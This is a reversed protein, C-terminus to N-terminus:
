LFSLGVYEYVDDGTLLHSDFYLSTQIDVQQTIRWRRHPSTLWFGDGAIRIIDRLNDDGTLLHSDFHQQTVGHTYPLRDDGTLLHSDFDCSNPVWQWAQETMEPSSIHTLIEWTHSTIDWEDTMEPSSIHTLIDLIYRLSERIVDDGTLLHSDFNRGFVCRGGYYRWRRHPSTLWFTYVAEKCCAHKQWRRHPSTLWFEMRLYM